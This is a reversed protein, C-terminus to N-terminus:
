ELLEMVDNYEHVGYQKTFSRLKDYVQRWTENEVQTYEVHPLPDGSRYTQAMEVIMKRRYLYEKDQFVVLTAVIRFVTLGRCGLWGNSHRVHFGPHDAELEAGADLCQALDGRNYLNDCHGDSHRCPEGEKLLQRYGHNSHPLVPSHTDNHEACPLSVTCAACM